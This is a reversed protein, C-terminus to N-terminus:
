SFIRQFFFPEGLCEKSLNCHNGPVLSTCNGTVNCDQQRVDNGQQAQSRHGVSGVLAGVADPTIMSGSVTTQVYATSRAM